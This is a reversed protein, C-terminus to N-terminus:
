TAREHDGEDTNVITVTDATTLKMYEAKVMEAIRQSSTLAAANNLLRRACEQVCTDEKVIIIKNM